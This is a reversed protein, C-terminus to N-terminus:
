QAVRGRGGRMFHVESSKPYLLEKSQVKQEYLHAKNIIQELTLDESWLKDKLERSRVGSSIQKCLQNNLTDGFDCYQAIDKLRAIYDGINENEKQFCEDFRKMYLKTLKKPEFHADFKRIVTNFNEKDEPRDFTFTKFIKKYKSGMGYLLVAVKRKGPKSILDTAYLYTDLDEKYQMWSECSNTDDGSFKPPAFGEAM